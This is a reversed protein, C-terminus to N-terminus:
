VGPTFSYFQSLHPPNHIWFTVFRCCFSECVSVDRWCSPHAATQWHTVWRKSGCLRDWHGSAQHKSQPNTDGWKCSHRNHINHTNEPLSGQLPGIVRGSSEVSNPTDAHSSFGWRSASRPGRPSDLCPPPLSIKCYSLPTSGEYSFSEVSRLGESVSIWIERFTSTWSVWM